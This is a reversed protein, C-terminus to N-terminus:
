FGGKAISGGGPVGPAPAKYGGTDGAYITRKVSKKLLSQQAFDREAQIVMADAASVPTQPLPTPAAKIEDAQTPGSKKKDFLGLPDTFAKKSFPNALSM